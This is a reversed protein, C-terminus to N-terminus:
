PMQKLKKEAAQAPPTGPYKEVLREYIIRAATTDGIQQFATGQKLLAQSAKGGRPYKDIVQQYTEIADQYRKESMYCEGVNFLANDAFESKPYKALLGQYEKRAPEFKGQQFLQSAKDFAAKDPMVPPPPPPPPPPAAQPPHAAFQPPTPTQPRHTQEPEMVSSGSPPPGPETQPLAAAPAQSHMRQSLELKHQLEDIRGNLKGIRMQLEELKSYFDGGKRSQGENSELRRELNYQRESLMSLNQQITSTEQTSACGSLIATLFFLLLFRINASGIRGGM